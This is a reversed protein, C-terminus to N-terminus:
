VDLSASGALREAKLKERAMRLAQLAVPIAGDRKKELFDIVRDIIETPDRDALFRHVYKRAARESREYRREGSAWIERIKAVNPDHPNTRIPRKLVRSIIEDVMRQAREDRKAERKASLSIINTM